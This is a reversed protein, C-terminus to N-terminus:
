ASKSNTPRNGIFRDCVRCFTRVQGDPGRREVWDSPGCLHSTANTPGTNVTTALQEPQAPPEASSHERLAFNAVPTPTCNSSSGGPGGSCGNTVDHQCRDADPQVVNAVYWVATGHQDRSDIAKGSVVRGRLHRLKNGLSRPSPFKGGRAPCLDLIAGRFLEIDDLSKELREILKSATLGTAEPDIEPWCEIVSRLAAAERDSSRALEERTEGPDSMGIWVLAQRVLDSWEEFSGWPKLNQGPRGARCYAHLITLPASLLRPREDHLWGLLNKHKFDYRDEPNELKSELRIHCVRRSTDALLVVNNGTAAWTTVLPMEVIESRGLIRDKWITGTLAADLSASGLEGAINDILVMQDGGLAIATIRKRMEDDEKPCSMRAITRGTIILSAADALLSKGSARINADILFLPSPGTFAHRALPTLLMALWAARHADKVFPFDCVGELLSTCAARADDISPSEIIDIAPGTPEYFLGTESDYGHTHLVTGNARLIPSSIVGELHRVGPWHGRAAVASICFAPPHVHITEEGEETEKRKVFRAVTTLRERLSAEKIVVIRPANAPRKIGKLTRPSHDNLIQVITGGRQFIVLDAALALIAQDNVVHEDPTIEIEARNDACSGVSGSPKWSQADDILQQLLKKGDTRRLIDRVDEGGSDKLEAPLVAIRVSKAAGRLVRATSQSGEEGARDRDPVLVVDVGAFLRAFKAALRCTNMGCALLGLGHLAAADKVGEVLYWAEGSQPLRVQGGDHPFFM